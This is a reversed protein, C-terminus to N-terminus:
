TREVVTCAKDRNQYFIKGTIEERCLTTEATAQLWVDTGQISTPAFESVTHHPKDEIIITLLFQGFGQFRYNEVLYTFKYVIFM